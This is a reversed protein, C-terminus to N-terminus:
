IGSSDLVIRLAYVKDNQTMDNLQTQTYGADLLRDDMSDNDTFPFAKDGVLRLVDGSATASALAPTFTVTTTGTASSADTITVVKEDRVAGASTLVKVKEGIRVVNAGTGLTADAGLITTTTGAANATFITSGQVRSSDDAASTGNNAKRKDVFGMDPPVLMHRAM